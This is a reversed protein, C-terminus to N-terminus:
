GSIEDQACYDWCDTQHLTLSHPLSVNYTPLMRFLKVVTVFFAVAEEGVSYEKYCAPELTSICTGHVKWEHEWFAENSEDDSVWYKTMFALVDDQGDSTLLSTINTYARSVDCSESYSGNCNNPWLGHITWSEAPGTSPNSDWFQVQQFLGGPSSICCTNTSSGSCSLQDTTDKCREHRGALATAFLVTLVAFAIKSLSPMISHETFHVLISTSSFDLM